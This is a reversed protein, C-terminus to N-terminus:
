QGVATNLKQTKLLKKCINWVIRLFHLSHLMGEGGGGGGGVGGGVCVCVCM